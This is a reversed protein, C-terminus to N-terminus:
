NKVCEFGQDEYNKELKDIASKYSYGNALFYKGANTNFDSNTAYLSMEMKDDQMSYAASFANAELGSEGFSINMAAHNQAESGKVLSEDDYYMTQFLAISKFDEGSYIATIKTEKSTSEDYRFFPYDLGATSCSLTTNKAETTTSNTVTTEGRLLFIIMLVIAVLILLIGTPIIWNKVVKAKM